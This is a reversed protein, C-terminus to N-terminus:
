KKKSRIVSEIDYNIINGKDIEMVCSVTLRDVNSKLVYEMLYNTHLM